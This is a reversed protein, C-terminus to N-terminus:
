KGQNIFASHNALRTRVVVVVRGGPISGAPVRGAKALRVPQEPVPHRQQSAASGATVM